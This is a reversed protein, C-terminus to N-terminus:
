PNPLTSPRSTATWDSPAEAKGAFDLITWDGFVHHRPLRLLMVGPPRDGLKKRAEKIEADFPAFYTPPPNTYLDKSVILHTIGLKEVMTQAVTPDPDYLAVILGRVRERMQDAYARHFAQHTERTVLVSRATLYPVADLDPPWGAILVNPSLRQIYVLAERRNPQDISKPSQRDSKEGFPYLGVTALDSPGVPKGDLGVNWATFLGVFLGVTALLVLVQPTRSNGSKAFVISALHAIGAPVIVVATIALPFLQYRSPLFLTPAAPISILYAILAALPLLTARRAAPSTRALPIFGAIGLVLMLLLLGTRPKLKLHSDGPDWDGGLGALPGKLFNMLARDVRPVDARDEERYRGGASVEPYAGADSPRLVGGYKNTALIQPLIAAFTLAATVALLIL